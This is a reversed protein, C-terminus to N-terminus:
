KTVFIAVRNWDNEGFVQQSSGVGETTVQDSNVGLKVLADKVSEARKESLKQNYQATGTKADAYGRIVVKSNPNEKLAEAVKSLNGMQLPEIKDSNLNFNVVNGVKFVKGPKALKLKEILDQITKAQTDVTKSLQTNQERLANVDANMRNWEDMNLLKALVFNHTGYSNKFKYSLGAQLGFYSYGVKRNPLYSWSPIVNVQLAQTVNANIQFGTRVLPSWANKITAATEDKRGVDFLGDNNPAYGYQDEKGVYKNNSDIRDAGCVHYAGVGAFWVIELPRAKGSYGAFLNNLNFLWDAGFTMHDFFTKNGENTAGNIFLQNGVVPTWYKGFDFEMVPKVDKIEMVTSNSPSWIGGGQLSIFTNDFFKSTKVASETQANVSVALCMAMFMLVIKKM